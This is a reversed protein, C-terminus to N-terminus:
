ARGWSGLLGRDFGRTGGREGGRLDRRRGGADDGRAQQARDAQTRVGAPRVAEAGGRRDPGGPGRRRLLRAAQRAPCAEPCPQRARGWAVPTGASWGPRSLARVPSSAVTSLEVTSCGHGTRTTLWFILAHIPLSPQTQISPWTACIVRRGPVLVTNRVSRSGDP